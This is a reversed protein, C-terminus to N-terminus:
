EYRKSVRLLKKNIDVKSSKLTNINFYPQVRAGIAIGVTAGREVDGAYPSFITIKESIGVRIIKEFDIDNLRETIFIGAVRDTFLMSVDRIGEVLVEVPYGGINKVKDKLLQGLDDANRKNKGYVFLLKVAKNETLKDVLGKDVAIIRPFIALSIKIRRDELEGSFAPMLFIFAFFVFFIAQILKKNNFKNM